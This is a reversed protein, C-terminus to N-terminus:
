GEEAGDFLEVERRFEAASFPRPKTARLHKRVHAEFDDVRAQWELARAEEDTEFIVSIGEGGIETSVPAFGFYPLYWLLAQAQEPEDTLVSCAFGSGALFDIRKEM